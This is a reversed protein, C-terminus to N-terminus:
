PHVTNRHNDYPHVEVYGCVEKIIASLLHVQFELGHVNETEILQKINDARKTTTTVVMVPPFRKLYKSWWFVNYEMNQYVRNYLTIKNFPNTARDYELLFARYHGTFTNRLLLLGDTRVSRFKVEYFWQPQEWSQAQKELWLRCWNIGILHEILQPRQLYYAFTGDELRLRKLQKEQRMLKLLREQAKRKGSPLNHFFM